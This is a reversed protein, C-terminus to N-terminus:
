STIVSLFELHCLKKQPSHPKGKAAKVKWIDKNHRIEQNWTLKFSIIDVTPLSIGADAASLNGESGACSGGLSHVGPSDCCVPIKNNSLHLVAATYIFFVTM